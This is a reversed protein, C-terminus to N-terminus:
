IFSADSYRQGEYTYKRNCGQAQVSYKSQSTSSVDILCIQIYDKPEKALPDLQIDFHKRILSKFNDTVDSVSVRRNNADITGIMEINTILSQVTTM